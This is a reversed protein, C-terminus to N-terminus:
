RYYILSPAAELLKPLKRVRRAFCRRPPNLSYINGVHNMPMMVTSDRQYILQLQEYIYMRSEIQQTTGSFLFIATKILIKHSRSNRYLLIEYRM